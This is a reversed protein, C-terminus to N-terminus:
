LLLIAIMGNARLQFSRPSTELGGAAAEPEATKGAAQPQGLVYVLSQGVYSMAFIWFWVYIFHRKAENFDSWVETWVSISWLHVPWVSWNLINTQLM